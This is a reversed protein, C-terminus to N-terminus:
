GVDQPEECVDVVNVRYQRRLEDAFEEVDVGLGEVVRLSAPTRDVRAADALDDRGAERLAETLREHNQAQTREDRVERVRRDGRLEEAARWMREDSDFLVGVATCYPTPSGTVHRGPAFLVVSAAVGTVLALVVTSLLPRRM